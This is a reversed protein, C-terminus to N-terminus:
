AICNQHFRHLCMLMLYEEGIEYSCQCITCLQNEESFNQKNALTFKNVPLAALLDPHVPNTEDDSDAPQFQLAGFDEDDEFHNHDDDYQDEHGANVM